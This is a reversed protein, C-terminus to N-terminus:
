TVRQLHNNGARKSVTKVNLEMGDMTVHVLDMVTSVPTVGVM